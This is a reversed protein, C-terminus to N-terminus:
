VIELITLTVVKVSLIIISSSVQLLSGICLNILMVRQEVTLNINQVFLGWAKELSELCTHQGSSLDDFLETTVINDKNLGLLHVCLCAYNAWQLFYLCPLSTNGRTVHLFSQQSSCFGKESLKM